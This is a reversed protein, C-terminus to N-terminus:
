KFAVMRYEDGTNVVLDYETRSVAQGNYGGNRWRVYLMRGDFDKIQTAFFALILQNNTADSTSGCWVFAAYEADSPIISSFATYADHANASSFAVTVIEYTFSSSGSTIGDIADVMGAMTLADTTGSKTRIADAIATLAADLAASDVAKDISM